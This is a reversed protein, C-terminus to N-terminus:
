DSTIKVREGAAARRCLLNTYTDVRHQAGRLKVVDGNSSPTAPYFKLPEQIGVERPITKMADNFRNVAEQSDFVDFVLFGPETQATAHVVLGEFPLDTSSQFRPKGGTLRRVVEEYKEQTLSPTQHVAVIPSM